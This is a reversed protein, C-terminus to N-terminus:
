KFYAKGWRQNWKDQPSERKRERRNQEYEVKAIAQKNFRDQARAQQRYRERAITRDERQGKAIDSRAAKFVKGIFGM